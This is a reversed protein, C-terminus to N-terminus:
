INNKKFGQKQPFSGIQSMNKWIPNFGGGLNPLINKKNHFPTPRFALHSVLQLMIIM